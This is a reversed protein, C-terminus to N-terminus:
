KDGRILNLCNSGPNLAHLIVTSHPRGKEIKQFLAVVRKLSLLSLYSQICSMESFLM